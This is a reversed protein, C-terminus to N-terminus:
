GYGDMNTSKRGHEYVNMWTRVDHGDMNTSKRGHEYVNMWTRGHEDMVM